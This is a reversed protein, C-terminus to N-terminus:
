MMQGIAGRFINEKIIQNIRAYILPESKAVKEVTDVGLDYLLQAYTAWGM